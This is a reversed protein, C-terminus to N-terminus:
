CGESGQVQLLYIERSTSKANEKYEKVVTQMVDNMRKSWTSAYLNEIVPYSKTVVSRHWEEM